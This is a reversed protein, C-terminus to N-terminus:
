ARLQLVQNATTIITSYILIAHMHDIVQSDLV